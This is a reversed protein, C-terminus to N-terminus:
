ALIEPMIGTSYGFKTMPINFANKMITLHLNALPVQSAYNNHYDNKIFNPAGALVVPLQTLDHSSGQMGSMFVIITNDLVSKGDSEMSMSLRGLLSAFKEVFFRNVTAFGDNNDGAHSLGHYGLLDGSTAVQALAGSQLVSTSSGKTFKRQTLFNYSYESRADDLMHSIVRTLNTEFAMQILDNMCEAHVNRNYGSPDAVLVAGPRRETYSASLTPRTYTKTTSAIATGQTKVRGEIEGVSGLFQDLRHQDSSSLKGRLSTAEDAVYDLVSIDRNKRLDALAQNQPNTAGGPALQMMLNDFVTQPNVQKYLPVDSASWSISRTMSPHRGDPNSNMTSCGLQLSKFAPPQSAGPAAIGGINQAIIQDVTPGGLIPKSVDPVTCSLSPACYLSHSPNPNVGQNYLAEQGLNTIVQVNKKYPILPELLASTSWASGAGAGTPKWYATAVGCSFYMFLYRKVPTATTAAQASPMSISELYPLALGVGLGRLVNRRSIWTKPNM